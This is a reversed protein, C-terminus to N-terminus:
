STRSGSTPCSGRAWGPSARGGGGRGGARRAGGGVAAAGAGPPADGRVAARAGVGPPLASRAGGRRAAAGDVPGPDGHPGGGAVLRDRARLGPGPAPLVGGVAGAAPGGAPLGARRDPQRPRRRQPGRAGGRARGPVDARPHGRDANERLRRHINEVDIIADDVVEGLAISLGALVMTDLTAGVQDLIAVAALLSLPIATVSVLATRWDWLFLVLVVVVLACGIGLALRLNGIAREIFGAPRFITADIEVGPLAPGLEDLADDIARTIELTNGWPQKAVILLLGPGGDIVADGILPPHGEVVEAVDQLRLDSGGRFAVPARGLEAADTVASVQSVALRQNPGDVFGGSVPSVAAQAAQSVDALRVGAARLRDPDVQVQLQRRREGWVAVNAVGPIAMLRPRITWRALDSLDLLSMSESSLGVKLM